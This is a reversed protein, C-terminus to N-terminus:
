NLNIKFCRNKFILTKLYFTNFYYYIVKFTYVRVQDVMTSGGQAFFKQHLPCLEM